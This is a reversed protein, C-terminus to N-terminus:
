LPMKKIKGFVRPYKHKTKQVKEVKVIYREGLDNPLAYTIIEKIEGGLTSIAKEGDKIEEKNSGKLAIFHGKVKVFPICLESLINLRAVARAFVVDFSERNDKIYDEARAHVNNSEIDLADCLLDLFKIRKNLADVITLDLEPYMIKLPIGPFGAGSGIDCIKQNSFDIAKIAYLSDLFHKVYVEKKETIATLNIKENWEVLLEFYTEFQNLQKDTIEFGLERFLERM